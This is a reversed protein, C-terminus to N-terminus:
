MLLILMCNTGFLNHTQSDTLSDTLQIKSTVLVTTTNAVTTNSYSRSTGSFVTHKGM